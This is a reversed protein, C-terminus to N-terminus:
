QCLIASIAVRSADTQPTYPRSPDPPTLVSKSTLAAKLTDLTKQEAEGWKVKGPKNRKLLEILAYAKDQYFPIFDAYYGTLGLFSEGQKKTNLRRIRQICAIKEEDPKALGNEVVHRLAKM